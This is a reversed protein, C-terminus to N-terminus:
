VPECKDVYNGTINRKWTQLSQIQTKAGQSCAANHYVCRKIIPIARRCKKCNCRENNNVCELIKSPTQMDAATDGSRLLLASLFMKAVSAWHYYLDWCITTWLKPQLKFIEVIISHHHGSILDISKKLVKLGFVHWFFSINSKFLRPLCAATIDPIFM